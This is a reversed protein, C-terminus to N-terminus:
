IFKRIYGRKRQKPPFMEVPLKEMTKGHFVMLKDLSLQM